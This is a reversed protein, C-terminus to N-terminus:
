VFGLVHSFTLNGALLDLRITVKCKTVNQQLLIKTERWMVIQKVQPMIKRTLTATCEPAKLSYHLNRPLNNRLFSIFEVEAKKCIM